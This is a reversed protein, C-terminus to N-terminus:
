SGDSWPERVQMNMIFYQQSIRKPYGVVIWLEGGYADAWKSGNHSDYPTWWHRMLENLSPSADFIQTMMSQIFTQRQNM